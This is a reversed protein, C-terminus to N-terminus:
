GEPEDAAVSENELHERRGVIVLDVRYLSGPNAEELRYEMYSVVEALIEATHPYRSRLEQALPDDCQRLDRCFLVGRVLGPELWKEHYWQQILRREEEDRWVIAGIWLEETTMLGLEDDLAQVLDIHPDAWGLELAFLLREALPQGVRHYFLDDSGVVYRHSVGRRSEGRRDLMEELEPGDVWLFPINGASADVLLERGELEVLLALHNWFAQATTSYQAEFTELIELLAEEPVDGRTEPGCFVYQSPIELADAVFRLAQAKESCAGGHGREINRLTALGDKILRRQGVFRSYLEFPASYIRHAAAWLLAARDEDNRLQLAREAREQGLHEVAAERLFQDVEARFQSLKRRHFVAWDRDYLCDRRDVTLEALMVEQDRGAVPRREFLLTSAADVPEHGQFLRLWEHLEGLEGEPDLQFLCEGVEWFDVRAEPRLQGADILEDPDRRFLELAEAVTETKEPEIRLAARQHTVGEVLQILHPLPTM